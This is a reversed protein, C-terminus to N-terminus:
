TPGHRGLGTLSRIGGESGSSCRVKADVHRLFCPALGREGDADAARHVYLRVAQVVPRRPGESLRRLACM